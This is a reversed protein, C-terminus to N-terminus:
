LITIRNPFGAASVQDSIVDKLVIRYYQDIKLDSIYNATVVKGNALKLKTGPQIKTMLSENGAKEILLQDNNGWGRNSDFPSQGVGKVWLGGADTFDALQFSNTTKASNTTSTSKKRTAFYIIASAAVVGLVIKKKRDMAM